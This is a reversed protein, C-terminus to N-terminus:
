PKHLRIQANLTLPLCTFMSPLMDYRLTFSLFRFYFMHVNLAAYWIEIHFFSVQFLVHSCQPCCIMDWHSLFFGSISWTFMSPLMDYRLTFSLFRFYFMHVNLAAYWIEIRFFSVQFLVHSCQPCCIMDWHSLFFGSISCTFMSPLMDYRLTFSIFRFYFMHINLAAYWIEIHFFSVHFLVHSCQPCRIMDWHSLFCGSIACTFMSPLTDYRLTFSLFRFYFM